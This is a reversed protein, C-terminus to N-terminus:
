QAGVVREDVLPQGPVISDRVDVAALEPADRHGVIRPFSQESVAADQGQRRVRRPRGRDNAAFPDQLVNEAGRRRRRRGVDRREFFVFLPLLWLRHPLLHRLMAGIRGAGTTVLDHVRDTERQLVEVSDPGPAGLISTCGDICRTLERVSGPDVTDHRQPPRM